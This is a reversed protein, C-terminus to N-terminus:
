SRVEIGLATIVQEIVWVPDCDADAALSAIREKSAARHVMEDTLAGDGARAAALADVVNQVRDPITVSLIYGGDGVLVKATRSVIERDRIASSGRIALAVREFAADRAAPEADGDRVIELDTIVPDCLVVALEVADADALAPAAHQTAFWEEAASALTGIQRRTLANLIPDDLLSDTLAEALSEQGMGTTPTSVPIQQDQHASLSTHRVRQPTFRGKLVFPETDELHDRPVEFVVGNLPDAQAHFQTALFALVADSAARVEDRERESHDADFWSRPTLGVSSSVHRETADHIVRALVERDVRAYPVNPADRETARAENTTDDHTM